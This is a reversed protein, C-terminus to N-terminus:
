GGRIKWQCGCNLCKCLRDSAEDSSRTQITEAYINDKVKCNPCTIGYTNAVLDDIDKHIFVSMDILSLLKKNIIDQVQNITEKPKKSVKLGGEISASM